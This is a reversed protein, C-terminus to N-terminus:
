KVNSLMSLLPIGWREYRDMKIEASNATTPDLPHVSPNYSPHGVEDSKQNGIFHASCMKSYKTPQWPKGDQRCLVMIYAPLKAQM